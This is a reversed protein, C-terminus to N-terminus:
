WVYGLEVVLEGAMSKFLATDAETFYNRWDGAVGKRWEAQVDEEGRKRGGSHKEFVGIGVLREVTQADHAVELWELVEGIRKPDEVLREYRVEFFGCAGYLERAKQGGAISEVWQGILWELLAPGFLPAALGKKEFHYARAREVEAVAKASLGRYERERMLLFCDSVVVDRGDRVMHLFKADPFLGHIEAAHTCFHMTTKDGVWKLKSWEKWKEREVAERYLGMLMSRRMVAVADDASMHRLWTGRAEKRGMWARVRKEDLWSGFSCGLDNFVWAENRCEIEPHANLMGAVWTTGSRRSGGFFLFGPGGGAGSADAGSIDTDTAKM